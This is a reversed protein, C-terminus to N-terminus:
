CVDKVRWIQLEYGLTKSIQFSGLEPDFSGSSALYIFSFIFWFIGVSYLALQLFPLLLLGPLSEFARAAEEIAKIALSISGRYMCLLFLEAVALAISIAGCAQPRHPTPPPFRTLVQFSGSKSLAL